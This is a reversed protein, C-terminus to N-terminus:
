FFKERAIIEVGQREGIGAAAVLEVVQAAQPLVDLGGAGGPQRHQVKACRGDRGGLDVGGHGAFGIPGIFQGPGRKVVVQAATISGNQAAAPVVQTGFFFFKVINRM